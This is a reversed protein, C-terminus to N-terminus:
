QDHDTGARNVVGLRCQFVGVLELAGSFAELVIEHDDHAHIELLRAGGDAPLPENIIRVQVAAKVDVVTQARCAPQQEFQGVAAKRCTSLKEIHNRRLEDGIQDGPPGNARTGRFTLNVAFEGGAQRHRDAELVTGIAAHLDGNVCNPRGAMCMMEQGHGFLPDGGNHGGLTVRM